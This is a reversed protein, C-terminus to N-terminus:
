IKMFMIVLIHLLIFDICINSRGIELKEDLLDYIKNECEEWLERHDKKIGLVPLNNRRSGDKLDMLKRRIELAM